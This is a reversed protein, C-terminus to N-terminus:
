VRVGGGGWNHPQQWYRYREAENLLPVIDDRRLHALQAYGDAVLGSLRLGPDALPDSWLWRAAVLGRVVEATDVATAPGRGSGLQEILELPGVRTELRNPAATVAELESIWRAAPQTAFRRTLVGAVEDVRGTALVHGLEQVTRGQSRYHDALLEHALDWDGPREALKWLLLRRLWPHLVPELSAPDLLWRARAEAFLADGHGLAQVGASLDRAAACEALRDQDAEGLGRLLHGVALDVLRGTREGQRLTREPLSRLWLDQEVGSHAPPGSQRLVDLVQQVARPLGGTLRHVFPTLRTYPALEPVGGFRLEIRIRVEDPSLDRLRLPYWWTDEGDRTPRYERWDALSARDPGRLRWPWTEGSAPGWRPLWRNASAVVTLPDCPGGNVVTDEHRAHLLLDVFRTGYPTHTNDLLLLYSRPMFNRACNRRLDELFASFLLRDLREHDGADGEHRWHNIEALAEWADARRTLPHGGFWHASSSLKGALRKRGHRVANSVLKLAFQSVGEPLGLAGAGVDLFAALYDGDYREENDEQFHDLQRRVARRGEASDRIRLDEDSALLGLTLLPFRARGYRRSKQGMQRAILALAYRPLLSHDGGFNVYAFPQEGGFRDLVAGHAQSAGSGRPGLLMTVPREEGPPLTLCEEVLSLIGSRGRLGLGM